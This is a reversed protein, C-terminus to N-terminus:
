GASRCGAGSVRAADALRAEHDSLVRRMLEADILIPTESFAIIWRQVLVKTEIDM